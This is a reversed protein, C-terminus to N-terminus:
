LWNISLSSCQVVIRPSEPWRNPPYDMNHPGAGALQHEPTRERAADVRSGAPGERRLRGRIEGCNSTILAMMESSLGHISCQGFSEGSHLVIALAVTEGLLSHGIAFSVVEKVDVHKLIAADIEIPSLVEGGRNIIEKAQVPVVARPSGPWKIRLSHMTCCDSTIRAMETSSLRQQPPARVRGTIYLYGEDDLRGMDGTDFWGDVFTDQNSGGTEYGGFLPAGKICINGVADVAGEIEGGGGAAHSLIQRTEPHLIRIKPGCPRGSTGTKELKYDHSPSTIPMCETM